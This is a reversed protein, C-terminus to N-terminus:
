GEASAVPETGFIADLLPKNETAKEFVKEERLAAFLDDFAANIRTREEGEPYPKWEIGFLPDVHYKNDAFVSLYDNRRDKAALHDELYSQFARAAMEEVTSWYKGASGADLIQAEAMFNSVQRGIPLTVKDGGEPSWYAAAIIRWQKKSKLSRKDDRSGFYRDVSMVAPEAAGAEKIMKAVTGLYERDINFKATSRDKETFAITEMLPRDGTTMVQKVKAFADRVRGAPLLDPSASAFEDKEGPSGRMLSPLINDIAHLLEHGLAGGGGMKTLNVVRQVPEYHARAAGKGGSGRAGFAMGLRGGLGLFKMDIGLVDAMDSMAAATQEVHFKASAPDRLVWNGSQIDRFGIMEKLEMTSSATVNRGGKREFTEAVKLQFNISEETPKKGPAVTPKDNQAWSWDKIKGMRASTVHTGFADSGRHSRYELVRFFKEGFSLWARTALNSLLNFYKAERRISRIQDYVLRADWELDNEYSTAGGDHVRKKSKLEPHDAQFELFVREAETAEPELEAIKTAIEPDPKWGRDARKRQQFKLSDVEQSARRWATQLAEQEKRRDRAISSLQEYKEELAAVADAQEASLTVGMLEDRIEGLVALVDDVTRAKELRERITELGLAFDRRTQAVAEPSDRDLVGSAELERAGSFGGSLAQVTVKPLIKTPETGISAYVKEILFGAAPEMGADQLAQWDTKGFLNSKTILDAAQRPNEEIAAWDIDTSRVRQGKQRAVKIMSAAMEKRSGAIYGTDKYRYNASAPDDSLGDDDPDAGAALEAAAGLQALIDRVAAASKIKEIPSKAAGLAASAKGLAGVLKIREVPSISDLTLEM